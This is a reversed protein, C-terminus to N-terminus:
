GMPHSSCLQWQGAAATHTHTHIHTHIHTHTRTHTHTHLLFILLMFRQCIHIVMLTCFLCMGIHLSNKSEVKELISATHFRELQEETMDEPGFDITLDGETYQIVTWCYAEETVQPCPLVLPLPLSLLM